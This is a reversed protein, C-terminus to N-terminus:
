LANWKWLTFTATRYKHIKIVIKGHLNLNQYLFNIILTYCLCFINSIFSWVCRISFFFYRVLYIIRDLLILQFDFMHCTWNEMQNFDENPSTCKASFGVWIPGTTGFNYCNFSEWFLLFCFFHMGKKQSYRVILAGSKWSIGSSRLM